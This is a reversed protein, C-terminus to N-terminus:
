RLQDAFRLYTSVSSVAAAFVAGMALASRAVALLAAAKGTPRAPEESEGSLALLAHVRARSHEAPPATLAQGCFFSEYLEDLCCSVVVIM